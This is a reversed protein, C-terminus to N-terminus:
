PKYPKPNPHLTQPKPNLTGSCIAPVVRGVLHNAVYIASADCDDTGLDPDKNDVM